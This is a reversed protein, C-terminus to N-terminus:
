SMLASSNRSQSSFLTHHLPEIRRLSKSKDLALRSVVDEDVERRDLHISVFRKVFTLQDLELDLLSGLAKLSFVDGLDLAGIGDLPATELVLRLM